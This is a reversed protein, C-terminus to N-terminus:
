GCAIASYEYYGHWNEWGWVSICSDRGYVYVPGAYYRYSGGDYDHDGHRLEQMNVSVSTSEGYSYNTTSKQTFACNYGNSSNYGVKVYAVTGWGDASTDYGSLAYSRVESYGSGCVGPVSFNAAASAPSTLSLASATTAALTSLSLLTRRLATNL